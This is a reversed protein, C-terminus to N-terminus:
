VPVIEHDRDYWLVYFTAQQRFGFLRSKESARVACIDVDKPINSPRSVRKLADDAYVTWALGTKNKGKGGTQLLENWTMTTMKRVCDKYHRITDRTCLSLCYAEGPEYYTFSLNVKVNTPPPPPPINRTDQSGVNIKPKHQNRGRGM